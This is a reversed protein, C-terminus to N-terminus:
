FPIPAPPPDALAARSQWPIFFDLIQSRSDAPPSQTLATAIPQQAARGGLEWGGPAPPRRLTRASGIDSFLLRRSSRTVAGRRRGSDAGLSIDGAAAATPAGFLVLFLFPSPAPRDRGAGSAERARSNAAVITLWAPRPRHRDPQCRRLGPLEIPGVAMPLRIEYFPIPAPPPDALGARPALPYFFGFDSLSLRRALPGFQAVLADISQGVFRQQLSSVVQQSRIISVAAYDAEM